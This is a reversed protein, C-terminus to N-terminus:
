SLKARRKAALLGGARCALVALGGVAAGILAGGLVDLPFHAGVYVRSYAVLAALLFAPAAARPYFASLLVAAAFTNSAHNSPFGYRGHSGARLVVDSVVYEPRLRHALPKILRYCLLDSVAVTVALAPIARLAGRRDRWVWAALLAALAAWFWPSRNLDTLVPLVADLARSTWVANLRHFAAHDFSRLAALM